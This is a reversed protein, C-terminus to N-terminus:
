KRPNNASDNIQVQFSGNTVDVKKGTISTLGTCDFHGSVVSGNRTTHPDIWVNCTGGASTKFTEGTDKRHVQLEGSTMSIDHSGVALGQLNMTLGWSGDDLTLFGANNVDGTVQAGSNVPIKADGDVLVFDFSQRATCAGLAGIMALTTWTKM